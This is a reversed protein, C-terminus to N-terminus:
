GFARIGLDHAQADADLVAAAGPLGVRDFIGVVDFGGILNDLVLADLDQDIGLRPQEQEAGFHVVLGVLHLGLEDEVIGVLGAGAAAALGHLQRRRLRLASKEVDARRVGPGMVGSM